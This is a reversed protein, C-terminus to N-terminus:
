LRETGGHTRSSANRCREHRASRADVRRTVPQQAKPGKIDSLDYRDGSELMVRALAAAEAPEMGRFFVAMLFASVQYEEVSGDLYGALLGRIEGPDLAGGERKRRILEPVNM